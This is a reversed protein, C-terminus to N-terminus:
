QYNAIISKKWQATKVKCKKVKLENFKIRERRIRKRESESIDGATLYLMSKLGSTHDIFTFEFGDIFEGTDDVFGTKWAQCSCDGNEYKKFFSKVKAIGMKYEVIEWNKYPILIKCRSDIVGYLGNKYDIKYDNENSSGTNLFDDSANTNGSNALMDDLNNSGGNSNNSSELLDDLNNSNNANSNSNNLIDDLNNSSQRGSKALYDDLSLNKSKKEQKELEANEAALIADLDNIQKDLNRMDREHQEKETIESQKKEDTSINLKKLKEEAWNNNSRLKEIKTNINSCEDWSYQNISKKLQNIQECKEQLGKTQAFYLAEKNKQIFKNLEEKTMRESTNYVPYNDFFYSYDKSYTLKIKEIKSEVNHVRKQEPTLDQAEQTVSQASMGIITLLFLLTILIKPLQIIRM